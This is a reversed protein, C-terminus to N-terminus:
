VRQNFQVVVQVAAHARLGDDVQATLMMQEQGGSMNANKLFNWNWVM